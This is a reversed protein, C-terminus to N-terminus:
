NWKQCLGCRHSLDRPQGLQNEDCDTGSGISWSLETNNEAYIASAHNTVDNDQITKTM